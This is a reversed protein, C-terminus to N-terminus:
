GDSADDSADDSNDHGGAATLLRRARSCGFGAPADATGDRRKGGDNGSSCGVSDSHGFRDGDEDV